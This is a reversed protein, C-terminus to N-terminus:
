SCTRPTYLGLIKKLHHSGFTLFFIEINVCDDQNNIVHTIFDKFVFKNKVSCKKELIVWYMIEDTHYILFHSKDEYTVKSGFICM